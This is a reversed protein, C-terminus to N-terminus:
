SLAYRIPDGLDTSGTFYGSQHAPDSWTGAPTWHWAAMRLESNNRYSIPGWGASLCENIIHPTYVQDIGAHSLVDISSGLADDPNFSNLIHSPTTDIRITFDPQTTQASSPPLNVALVCLACLLFIALHTEQREKRRPLKITKM